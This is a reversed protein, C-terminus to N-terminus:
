FYARSDVRRAALVSYLINTLVLNRASLNMSLTHKELSDARM